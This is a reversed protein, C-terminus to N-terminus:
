CGSVEQEPLHSDKGVEQEGRSEQVPNGHRICMTREDEEEPPERNLDQRIEPVTDNPTEPNRRFLSECKSRATDCSRFRLALGIVMILAVLLVGVPILVKALLSAEKSNDGCTVDSFASGPVMVVQNQKECRTWPRCPETLSTENSFYETPCPECRTDDVKNAKRTVGYGPKCASDHVCTECQESSCHRGETCKCEADEEATGPRTQEFGANHDCQSVPKCHRQKNWQDQFEGRACDECQITSEVTCESVFKQGPPCMECCSESKQFEKPCVWSLVVGVQLVSLLPLLTPVAHTRM